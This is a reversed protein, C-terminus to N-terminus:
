GEARNKVLQYPRLLRQRIDRIALSDGFIEMGHTAILDHVDNEVGM